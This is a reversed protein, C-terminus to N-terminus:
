REGSQQKDDSVNRRAWGFALAVVKFALWALLLTIGVIVLSIFVNDAIDM